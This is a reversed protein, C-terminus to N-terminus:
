NNNVNETSLMIEHDNANTLTATQTRLEFVRIHADSGYHLRVIRGLRWKTPPVEAMM